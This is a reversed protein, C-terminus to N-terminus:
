IAKNFHLQCILSSRLLNKLLIVYTYVPSGGDGEFCYILFLFFICFLANMWESSNGCVGKGEERRLKGEWCCGLWREDNHM